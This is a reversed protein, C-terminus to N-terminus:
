EYKKTVLISNIVGRSNDLINTGFDSSRVTVEFENTTFNRTILQTSGGGDFNAGSYVGYFRMFDALELLNLGYPNTDSSSKKGYRLLELNYTLKAQVIDKVSANKIMPAVQATNGSIGFLMPMSAPLDSKENTYDYNRNDNHSDKVILSDKVFANVCRSGGFHDANTAAVVMYDPNYM